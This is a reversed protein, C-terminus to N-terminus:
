LRPNLHSVHHPAPASPCSPIPKAPQLPASPSEPHWTLGSGIKGTNRLMHNLPAIITLWAEIHRIVATTIKGRFFTDPVTESM